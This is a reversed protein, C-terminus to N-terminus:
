TQRGRKNRDGHLGAADDGSDRRLGDRCAQRSHGGGGSPHFGWSPTSFAPSEGRYHTTDVNESLKQGPLLANQKRAANAKVAVRGVVVRDRRLRTANRGVAASPEQRIMPRERGCSPRKDDK